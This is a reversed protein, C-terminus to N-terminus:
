NDKLLRIIFTSGMGPESQVSINGKHLHIIKQTLTLGIGNGDAFKKNEGRYFPKFIQELEDKSIGIGKDTFKLEIENQEQRITVTCSKNESYKCANEMLNIFAVKLLYANANINLFDGDSNSVNDFNIAVKNDPQSRLVDTRADLLVEDLRVEKFTIEQPDYSAKAFDLLSNSLRVLKKTDDTVRRIAEQYELQTRLKTATLQLETLMATLPTRLEHSINSVFAKQADFSAELRDLMQNFTIALAAIEDKRNGENVRIDLKAATIHKVKDILSAVPKLSQSSLFRGALYILLISIIFLIVLTNRLQVLKSFGYADVAAATIAYKRNNHQYTFGVVQMKNQQYRIEGLNLISDIMNHTEKVKDVDVADHYLLRFSSDYIAVEEQYLINPANRYILQLVSPQINSNFLLNSKITAQQLLRKYYEEERTKATSFYIVSAFLALLAAVIVTFLITLRTRIQM